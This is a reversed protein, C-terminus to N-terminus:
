GATSRTRQSRAMALSMRPRDDQARVVCGDAQVDMPDKLDERVPEGEHHDIADVLDENCGALTLAGAALAALCATGKRSRRRNRAIRM